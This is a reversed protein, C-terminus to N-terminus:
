QARVEMRPALGLVTLPLPQECEIYIRSDRSWVGDTSPAIEGSFLPIADDRDMYDRLFEQSYLTHQRRGQEEDYEVTTVDFTTADLLIIGVESIIKVKGVGSGGEMNPPALKLSEYRSKYGLGVQAKTVQENLSISGSSVIRTPHIKGDALIRVTQGELHDLGTIVSTASGDYTLGCDVYFADEQQTRMAAQWEAETDYDERLPGDFFYEMFEIYRKTSGNITRKVIMWLENREDSTHTQTDDNAGPIVAVSEVVADGSGFSGGIVTQSWGLVQHQKNYSLSAMRGDERRCWIISYPNRQYVMEELKSTFMHDSLITLDTALFSDEELSFGLDHVERRARDAFLITQNIEINKTDACPVAAHQKTSIDSPTVVAGSSRIVWQGGATGVMLNKQGSVWFIPNIKTSRLTVSIADDDQATLDGESFSDLRMNEIQGSQSMWLSNPKAETNAFVSRGDYFGVVKPYGQDGGWAGFRWSETPATSALARLVFLTVSTSSSYATIVGYGAEQGPWEMRILRGVDASTFPSFGLATLTVSGTTASAELLSHDESYVQFGGIGARGKDYDNHSFEAHLTTGSTTFEYSSWGPYQTTNIYQTGGAASGLKVTVPGAAVVLIHAVHKKSTVVTASTRLIAVGTGGTTGPDLEAFKGAENFVVFGDGTSNDTWGIMGNEFLSNSVLQMTALDDGNHTELYPGDTFFAQVISWSRHGRREIKRVAYDPHCVYVVDAAQFYRLDELDATAYPSVLELAANDIFEVNDVFGNRAPSNTNRFQISISTAGPTFSISHEGEGLLIESLVESGTNSTGVQFGIKGGGAIALRFKLVHVKATHSAGISITQRAWAVGGSTGTLQLRQNTSDHAIAAGGTSADTWGTINSAFTGNTVAADTDDVTLSGQRRYFRFYNNGAEIIYSDDESFEFPILKTSLSSSKVEKVFRTGPRRSIGGQPFLIFNRCLKAANAYREFDVRAEMRPSFEGSNISSLFPTAM